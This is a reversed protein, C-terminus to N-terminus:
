SRGPCQYLQTAVLAVMVAWLLSTATTGGPPAPAPLQARRAIDGAGDLEDHYGHSGPHSHSPGPERGTRM